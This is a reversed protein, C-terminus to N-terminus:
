DCGSIFESSFVSWYHALCVPGGRARETQAFCVTYVVNYKLNVQFKSLVVIKFIFYSKLCVQCNILITYNSLMETETECSPDLTAVQCSGFLKAAPFTGASNHLPSNECMVALSRTMGVVTFASHVTACGQTATIDHAVPAKFGNPALLPSFFGNFDRVWWLLPPLHPSSNSTLLVLDPRNSLNEMLDLSATQYFFLHPHCM